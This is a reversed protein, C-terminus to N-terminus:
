PLHFSSSGRNTYVDVQLIKSGCSIGHITVADGHRLTAPLGSATTDCGSQGARGNVVLRNVTFPDTDDSTITVRLEKSVEVRMTPATGNECGTLALFLAGIYWFGKSQFRMSWSATQRFSHKLMMEGIALSFVFLGPDSRPRAYCGVFRNRAIRRECGLMLSKEIEEAVAM